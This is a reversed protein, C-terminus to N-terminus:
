AEQIIKTLYNNIIKMDYKTKLSIKKENISIIREIGDIWNQGESVQQNHNESLVDFLMRDKLLVDIVEDPLCHLLM